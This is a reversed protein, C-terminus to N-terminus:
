IIMTNSYTAIAHNQHTMGPPLRVWAGANSSKIHECPLDRLSLRDSWASGFACWFSESNQFIRFPKELLMWMTWMTWMTWPKWYELRDLLSLVQHRFIRLDLDCTSRIIARRFLRCMSSLAWTRSSNFHSTRLKGLGQVECRLLCLNHWTWSVELMSPSWHFTQQRKQWTQWTKM